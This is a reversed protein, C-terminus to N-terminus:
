SLYRRLSPQARQSEGFFRSIYNLYGQRGAQETWLHASKRIRKLCVVIDTVSNQQDAPVEDNSATRGLRWECMQEAAQFVAKARESLRLQPPTRSGEEAAYRRVLADLADIVDFDLLDAESEYVSLIAFEINQLVDYFQEVTDDRMGEIIGRGAAM